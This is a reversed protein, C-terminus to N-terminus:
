MNFSEIDLDLLKLSHRSDWALRCMPQDPFRAQDILYVDQADSACSKSSANQREFRYRVKSSLMCCVAWEFSSTSAKSSLAMKSRRSQLIILSAKADFASWQEFLLYMANVLMRDFSVRFSEIALRYNARNERKWVQDYFLEKQSSFWSKEVISVLNDLCQRSSRKKSM